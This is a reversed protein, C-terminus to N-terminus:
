MREEQAGVYKLSCNGSLLSLTLLLLQYEVLLSRRGGGKERERGGDTEETREKRTDRM